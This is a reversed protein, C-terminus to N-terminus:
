FRYDLGVYRLAKRHADLNEERFVSLSRRLYEPKKRQFLLKDFVRVLWFLPLLWPCKELVPYQKKMFVLGPFLGVMLQRFWEGRLSQKQKMTKLGRSLVRNELMGFNGSAFIYETMFEVIDDAPGDGFWMGLLRLTNGYFAELGLKKMEQGIYAEDMHPHTRRWLWLDAVHRCGIGGDRYHKAYHSFLYVFTDEEGMEFRCGKRQKALQWGDGYYGAYDLNYSPILRKHLEVNLRDSIWVLEHDTEKKFQYGLTEMIPVIRDYQELRILIDADGMSRLEPKPYLPKLIVGKVPMYDIGAEEFADMLSKLAAMQAESRMLGIYYRQLLAAMAPSSVGCLFAGQYAM